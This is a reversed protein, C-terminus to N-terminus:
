DTLPQQSKRRGKCRLGWPLLSWFCALVLILLRYLAISGVWLASSVVFALLFLFLGITYLYTFIIQKLSPHQKSFVLFERSTEGYIFYWRGTTEGCDKVRLSRIPIIPVLFITIWKTTLYSGDSAFDRKGYLTTGCGCMSAAM